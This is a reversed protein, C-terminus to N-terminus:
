LGEAPPPPWKPRALPERIVRLIGVGQCWPCVAKAPLWAKLSWSGGADQRTTVSIEGTGPLAYAGSEADQQLPNCVSCPLERM